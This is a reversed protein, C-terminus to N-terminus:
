TKSKVPSEGHAERYLFASLSRLLAPSSTDTALRYFGPHGRTVVWHTLLATKGIRRRGYLM